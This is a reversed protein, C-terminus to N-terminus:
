SLTDIKKASCVKNPDATFVGAVDTWNEYVDSAMACGLLAGSIDSGGRPLARVAKTVRDQGFFGPLVVFPGPSRVSTADKLADMTYEFDVVATGSPGNKLFVADEPDVFKCDPLAMSIVQGAFYEGRSVVFDYNQLKEKESELLQKVLQNVLSDSHSSSGAGDAGSTLSSLMGSFRLGIEEVLTEKDKTSAEASTHMKHLRILLDTTKV